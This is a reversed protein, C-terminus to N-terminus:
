IKAFLSRNRSDFRVTSWNRGKENSSKQLVNRDYGEGSELPRDKWIPLPSAPIGDTQITSVALV